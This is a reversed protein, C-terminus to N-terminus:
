LNRVPDSGDWDHAAQRVHNMMWGTMDNLEMVEICTSSSRTNDFYCFRAVGGSDGGYVSTWGAVDAAALFADYDSAWWALHHFGEHGADLFERYISPGADLQQILEIQLEGSNAFAIELEPHITSGRYEIPYAAASLKIWPGVGIALWEDIAAALDRVVYGNQRIAGPLPSWDM